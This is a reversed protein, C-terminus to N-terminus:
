ALPEVFRPYLLHGPGLRDNVSPDAPRPPTPPRSENLNALTNLRSVKWVGGRKALEFLYRGWMFDDRTGGDELERRIVIVCGVEASATDGFLAIREGSFMHLRRRADAGLSAAFDAFAVGDGMFPGITIDADPWFLSDFLARNRWDAAYTYNTIVQRVASEDMLRHLAAREDTSLESM